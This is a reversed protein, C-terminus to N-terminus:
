KMLNGLDKCGKEYKYNIFHQCLWTMSQLMKVAVALGMKGEQHEKDAKRMLSKREKGNEITQKLLRGSYVKGFAGEGIIRDL